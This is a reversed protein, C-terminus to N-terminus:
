STHPRTALSAVRVNSVFLLAYTVLSSVCLTHEERKLSETGFLHLAVFFMLVSWLEM